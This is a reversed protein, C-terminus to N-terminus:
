EGHSCVVMDAVLGASRIGASCFAVSPNVARKSQYVSVLVMSIRCSINGTKILVFYSSSVKVCLREPTMRGVSLLLM